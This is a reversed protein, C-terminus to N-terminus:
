RRHHLPSVKFPSNRIFGVTSGLIAAKARRPNPSKDVITGINLIFVAFPRHIQAVVVGGLVLLLR